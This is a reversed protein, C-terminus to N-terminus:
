PTLVKGILDNLADVNLTSVKRGSEYKPLKVGAKRLKCSRIRCYDISQGTKQAVQAVSTSSVWARVFEENSVFRKLQKV